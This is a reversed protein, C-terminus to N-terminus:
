RHRFNPATLAIRSADFEATDHARTFHRRGVRQRRRLERRYVGLTIWGLM